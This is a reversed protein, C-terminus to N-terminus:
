LYLTPCRRENTRAPKSMLVINSMGAVSSRPCPQGERYKIRVEDVCADTDVFGHKHHATSKLEPTKAATPESFVASSADFLPLPDAFSLTSSKAPDGCQSPQPRLAPHTSMQSWPHSSCRSSPSQHTTSLSRKDGQTPRVVRLLSERERKAAPLLLPASRRPTSDSGHGPFSPSFFFFFFAKQM